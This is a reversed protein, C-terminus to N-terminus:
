PVSHTLSHMYSSVHFNVDFELNQSRVVFYECDHIHGYFKVEIIKQLREMHLECTCLVTVGDLAVSRKVDRM